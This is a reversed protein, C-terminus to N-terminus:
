AGVPREGKRHRYFEILTIVKPRLLLMNRYREQLKENESLNDTRPDVEQLAKLFLEVNDSGELVERELNLDVKPEERIKETYNRPFVGESGTSRLEGRWWEKFTTDVVDM